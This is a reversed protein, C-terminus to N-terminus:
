IPTHTVAPKETYVLVVKGVRQEDETETLDENPWTAITMGGM